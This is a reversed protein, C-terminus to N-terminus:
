HNAIGVIVAGGAGGDGHRPSSRSSCPPPSLSSPRCHEAVAQPHLAGLVLPQDLKLIDVPLRRLTNVSGRGSGFDAIAVRVGLRRM